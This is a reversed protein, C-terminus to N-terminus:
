WSFGQCIVVSDCYRWLPRIDMVNLPCLFSVSYCYPFSLGWFSGRINNSSCLTSFILSEMSDIKIKDLNLRWFLLKFEFHLFIILCFKEFIFSLYLFPPLSFMFAIIANIIHVRFFCGIAELIIAIGWFSSSWFHSIRM